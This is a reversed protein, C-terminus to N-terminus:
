SSDLQYQYNHTILRVVWKNSMKKVINIMNIYPFNHSLPVYFLVINKDTTTKCSMNFILKLMSIDIPSIKYIFLGILPHTDSLLHTKTSIDVGNTYITINNDGYNLQLQIGKAEIQQIDEMLNSISILPNLCSKYVVVDAHNSCLMRKTIKRLNLISNTSPSTITIIMNIEDNYNSKIEM